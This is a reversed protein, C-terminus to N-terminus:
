KLRFREPGFSVTLSRVSEPTIGISISMSCAFARCVVVTM